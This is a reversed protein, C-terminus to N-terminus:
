MFDRESLGLCSMCGSCCGEEQEMETDDEDHELYTDDDDPIHDAWDKGQWSDLDAHDWQAWFASM